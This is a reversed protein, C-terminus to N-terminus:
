NKTSKVQVLFMDAEGEREDKVDKDSNNGHFKSCMVICQSEQATEPRERAYPSAPHDPCEPYSTLAFM